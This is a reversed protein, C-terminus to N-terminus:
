FLPKQEQDPKPSYEYRGTQLVRASEAILHVQLLRWVMQVDPHSYSKESVKVGDHFCTLTGIHRELEPFYRLCVDADLWYQPM